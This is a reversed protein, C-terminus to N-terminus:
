FLQGQSSIIAVARRSSASAASPRPDSDERDAREREGGMRPRDGLGGAVPPGSEARLGRVPQVAQAKAAAARSREAEGPAPPEM